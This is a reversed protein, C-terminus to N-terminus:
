RRENYVQFEALEVQNDYKDILIRVKNGWARNVRHIKIRSPNIGSLILKWIGNDNYQVQTNAGGAGCM